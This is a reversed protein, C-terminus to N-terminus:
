LQYPRSVFESTNGYGNRAVIGSDERKCPANKFWYHMNCALEESDEGYIYFGKCFANHVIDLCCITKLIVGSFDEKKLTGNIERWVTKIINPGYRSINFLVDRPLGTEEIAQLINLLVGIGSARRFFVSTLYKSVIQKRENSWYRVLVHLQKRNQNRKTDDFMATYGM